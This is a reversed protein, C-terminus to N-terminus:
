TRRQFVCASFEYRVLHVKRAMSWNLFATLAPRSFIIGQPNSPNTFLLAKIPLGKEAAAQAAADLQSAIDGEFDLHVPIPVVGNRVQSSVPLSIAIGSQNCVMCNMKM